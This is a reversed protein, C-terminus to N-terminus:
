KRGASRKVPREEAKGEDGTIQERSPFQPDQITALEGFKGPSLELEDRFSKVFGNHVDVIANETIRDVDENWLSLKVTGTEDGALATTVRAPGYRTQVDRPPEVSLIRLRIDVRRSAPSLEKVKM